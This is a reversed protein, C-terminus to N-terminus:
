EEEDERFMQFKIDESDEFMGKRLCHLYVAFGFFGMLLSSSLYWVM